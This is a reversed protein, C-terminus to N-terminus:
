RGGGLILTLRGREPHRADNDLQPIEMPGVKLVGAALEGADSEGLRQLRTVDASEVGTIAAAAGILRSASIEGGFVLNDPHFFARSGDALSGTGLRELLAAQVHAQQYDPLVCIQLAVDLPVYEAPGVHLDHGIRRVRELAETVLANEHCDLTETGLPDLAVDAEYWSGTWRLEAAARQLGREASAIAAYDAATIARRLPWTSIAPVHRKVSLVPEPDTGGTAPLPNRVGTVADSRTTCSVVFAIAEAGVNGASGNGIRYHAGLSAGPPPPEGLTGDGFRVHMAGDDDVEGVVDRDSSGSALLTRRPVWPTAAAYPPVPEPGEGTEDITLQPLACRPDQTLAGAAPGFLAPDSPDFGAAYKAGWSDTVEELVQAGLVEGSRARRALTAIRKRKGDLLTPDALLADVAEAQDVDPPVSGPRRVPAVLGVDVLAPVGFITTLAAIDDSGLKGGARVQAALARVDAVARDPIGAVLRAQSHALTTRDPFPVRQTVPSQALVPEYLLQPTAEPGPRLPGECPGPVPDPIPVTLQEPPAGCADLSAGHDVLVVNGHAVTVPCIPECDGPRLSSICAPFTLADEPAWTVNVIPQDFLPDAAQEVSVLRVAQRHRPDADACAGTLPGRIEEIILVDGAALQLSREPTPREAADAADAEAEASSTPEPPTQM